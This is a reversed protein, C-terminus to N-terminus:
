NFPNSISANDGWVGGKEKQGNIFHTFLENGALLLNQHTEYSEM